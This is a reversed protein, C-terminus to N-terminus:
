LRALLGMFESQQYIIIQMQAPGNSHPFEWILWWRVYNFYFIVGLERTNCLILTLLLYFDPMNNAELGTSLGWCREPTPWLSHNLAPNTLSRQHRRRLDEAARGVHEANLCLMARLTPSVSLSFSHYCAKSLQSLLFVKPSFGVSCKELPYHIKSYYLINETRDRKQIRCNQKRRALEQPYSVTGMFSHVGWPMFGNKCKWLLKKKGFLNWTWYTMWEGAIQTM